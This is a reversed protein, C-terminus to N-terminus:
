FKSQLGFINVTKSSLKKIKQGFSFPRVNVMKLGCLGGHTKPMFNKGM